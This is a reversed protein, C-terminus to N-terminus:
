TFHESSSISQPQSALGLVVFYVLIKGLIFGVFDWGVRGELFGLFLPFCVWFTRAAQSFTM